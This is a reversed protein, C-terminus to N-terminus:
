CGMVKRGLVTVIQRVEDILQEFLVWAFPQSVSSDLLYLLMTIKSVYFPPLHLFFLHLGREDRVDNRLHLLVEVFDSKEVLHM